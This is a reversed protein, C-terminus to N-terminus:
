SNNQWDPTSLNSMSILCRGERYYAEQLPFGATPLLIREKQPSSLPLLTEKFAFAIIGFAVAVVAVKMLAIRLVDLHEWFSQKDKNESM